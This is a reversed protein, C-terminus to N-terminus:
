ASKLIKKLVDINFTCNWKEATKRANVGLQLREETPM